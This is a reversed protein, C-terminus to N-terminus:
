APLSEDEKYLEDRSVKKETVDALELLFDVVKEEFIPARLGAVAQPNQRFYEYVKQEQGPFQRVRDMVARNLEEETVQINNKEGIEALVLGLRVRREAIARYEAKAKEETTNEDAFTKKENELEQQVSKWVRDFEEEVLSPPPDFKHMKDLQDLLARKVKQRTMGTHERTISDKVVERLKAVSELGLTKAFEDNIEVTGPTEVTKATVTFEADKGALNEAPYHQPFTVKITRTEGPAIGIIQDEFGPIFTNSGILIPADEGKGGEFPEGNIRGEYSIVVRDGSAAKEGEGRQSFPKNQDAIRAIAQDIEEDAVDAVPKELKIEKFNGLAIPPVIELAMTYNLDSKGEILQEVAEKDEPLTVKPDAALKFGRESVIQNNTDRVTTEIVEAMTARGYMRKLHAVPVKGPRFGNIRVRTKLEDLRQNVKADLEAAPVVVKFERKLGDSLTETVQMAAV